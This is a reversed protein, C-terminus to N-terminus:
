LCTTIRRSAEYDCLMQMLEDNEGNVAVPVDVTEQPPIFHTMDIAAHPHAITDARGRRKGGVRRMPALQDISAHDDYQNIDLRQQNATVSRTRSLTSQDSLM